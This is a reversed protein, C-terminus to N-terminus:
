ANKVAAQTKINDQHISAATQYDDLTTGHMTKFTSLRSDTQAKNLKIAKDTQWKDVKIQDTVQASQVRAQDLETMATANQRQQAQLDANRKASLIASRLKGNFSVLDKLQAEFQQALSRRLPDGKRLPDRLLPELHQEIHPGIIQLYAFATQLTQPDVDQGSDMQQQIPGMRQAVDQLHIQIHRVNDNGSSVIPTSGSAATGNEAAAVSDDEQPIYTKPNLVEVKDVGLTAAIQMDIFNSKGQEPLSPVFPAFQQLNQQRMASSGYGSERNAIVWDMDQLAEIPVGDEECSTRFAVADPESSKVVKDLTTTYLLDLATYFISIQGQSLNAEKLVQNQVQTATPMEGRGDDRTLTRQNYVGLNNALHNTLMRDVAMVGETDGAFGTQAVKTGRPLITRDSFVMLQLNDQAEMTDTQLVIACRQFAADLAKCKLRNSADWHKFGKMAMGRVSHWTGYGTNQFFMIIAESYSDYRDIHRFLFGADDSETELTGRGVTFNDYVPNQTVIFQSIKIGEKRFEQVLARYTYIVQGNTTWYLDNNKLRVEWEEWPTATWPTQANGTSAGAQQIARKVAPVNWGADQAAKEDRIKDWLESITFSEILLLTVLRDDVLSATDKPVMVCRSEVSKFKWKTPDPDYVLPAYGWRLMEATMNQIHWDFEPWGKFLKQLHKAIKASAETREQEDRGWKTRCMVYEKVGSFIQYYPVRASDISAEGELFNLNAMWQQGAAKRRAPNYPPNGQLLGRTIARERSRPEDDIILRRAVGRLSSADQVRSVPPELNDDLTTLGYLATPPMEVSM